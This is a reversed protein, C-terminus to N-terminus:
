YRCRSSVWSDTFKVDNSISGPIICQYLHGPISNDGDITETVTQSGLSVWSSDSNLQAHADTFTFLARESGRIVTLYLLSEQRCGHEGFGTLLKHVYM